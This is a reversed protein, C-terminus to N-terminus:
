KAKQLFLTSTTFSIWVREANLARLGILGDTESSLTRENEIALNVNNYVASGILFTAFHHRAVNFGGGIGMGRRAADQALAADTVGAKAAANRTLLVGSGAGSDLELDLFANDLFVPMTLNHNATHKLPITDYDGKWSPPYVDKCGSLRYITLMKSPMDIGIDFYHLFDMGLIGDTHTTGEQFNLDVIGYEWDQFHIAGVETIRVHGQFGPLTEKNGAGRYIFQGARNDMGVGAKQAFASDVLTMASGTDLLFSGTTGNMTVPVFIYNGVFRFPLEAVTAVTCGAAAPRLPMAWAACLALAALTARLRPASM